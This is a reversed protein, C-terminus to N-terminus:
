EKKSLKIADKPCTKACIGCGKCINEDFVVKGDKDVKIASEPCDLWCLYCEICKERNIDPKENSWNGTMDTVSDCARIYGPKVIKKTM